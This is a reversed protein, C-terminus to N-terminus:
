NDIHSSNKFFAKFDNYFIYDPNTNFFKSITMALDWTLRREGCEILAYYSKSINLKSAMDRVSLNQEMRMTKLRILAPNNKM